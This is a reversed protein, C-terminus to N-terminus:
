GEVLPVGDAAPPRVGGGVLGALAVITVLYPAIILLEPNVNVNLLGLSTAISTAFGFLLAALAARSARWGGFIVAALSVYGLGASMQAVFQGASGGAVIGVVFRVHRVNVGSSLAASPNEGSARIRLGTATHGLMLEVLVILVIALYFIISEDFLGKGIIPIKDLGPIAIGSFTPPSNFATSNPDLFQETLYGTLGTVLTILILGAVIQDVAYRVALLSLASGVLMGAAIGTLLGFLLSHTVTAVVASCFAAALFEGEIAINIVGSRESLVGATSGLLLPIAGGIAAVVINSLSLPANQPAWTLYGLLTGGVGLSFAIRLVVRAAGGARTLFAAVAGLFCIAAATACLAAIQPNV